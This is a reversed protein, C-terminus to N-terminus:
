ASSMEKAILQLFITLSRRVSVVKADISGENDATPTHKQQASQVRRVLRRLEQKFVGAYIITHLFYVPTNRLLM